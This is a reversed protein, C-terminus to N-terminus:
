APLREPQTPNSSRNNGTDRETHDSAKRSMCHGATDLIDREKTRAEAAGSAPELQSTGRMAQDKPPEVDLYRKTSWATGSIHGLPAAALNLRSAIRFADVVRARRRIQRWSANGRTAQGLADGVSKLFSAYSIRKLPRQQSRPRQRSALSAVQRAAAIDESAHMAKLRAPVERVKISRV